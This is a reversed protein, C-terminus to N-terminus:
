MYMWRRVMQTVEPETNPRTMQGVAYAHTDDELMTKEAATYLSHTKYDYWVGVWTSMNKQEIAKSAEAMETIRKIEM